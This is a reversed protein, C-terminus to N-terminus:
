IWFNYKNAGREVQSEARWFDFPSGSIARDNSDLREEYFWVGEIDNQKYHKAPINFYPLM